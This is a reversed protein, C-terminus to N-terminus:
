MKQKSILEDLSQALTKIEDLLAKASVEDNSALAVDLDERLHDLLELKLNISAFDDWRQPACRSQWGENNTM